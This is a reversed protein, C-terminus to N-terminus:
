QAVAQVMMSGLSIVNNHNRQLPKRIGIGKELQMFIDVFYLVTLM